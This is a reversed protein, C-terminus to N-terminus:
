EGIRNYLLASEDLKHQPKCHLLIAEKNMKELATGAQEERKGGIMVQEHLKKYYRSGERRFLRVHWHAPHEIGWETGWFNHTFVQYGRVKAPMNEQLWKIHQVLTWSPLEDCDVHLVLDTGLQDLSFNRAASFDDVWEFRNFHVGPWQKISQEVVDINASGTDVISFETAVARLYEVLMAVRELPEDKMIIAVGVSLM